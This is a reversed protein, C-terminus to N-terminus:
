ELEASRTRTVSSIEWRDRDAAADADARLGRPRSQPGARLERPELRILGGALRIARSGDRRDQRWEPTDAASPGGGVHDATSAPPIIAAIM